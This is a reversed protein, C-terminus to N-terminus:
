ATVGGRLVSGVTRDRFVRDPPGEALMRGEHLFYVFDALRLVLGLSHEVMLISMGGAALAKFLLALREVAAPAMGAFPEDLLLLRPRLLMAQALHWLKQQGFSLEAAKTVALTRDPIDLGVQRLIRSVHGRSDVAHKRHRSVSGKRAVREGGTGFPILLNDLMSLGGFVRPLQFTRAMGMRVREPMRMRDVTRGMFVIRGGDARCLGTVTHFLTSKGAGNQGVLAVIRAPPVTLSVRDLAHVGEYRKTVNVVQLLAGAAVPRRDKM